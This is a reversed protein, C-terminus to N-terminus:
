NEKGCLMTWRAAAEEETLFVDQGIDEVPLEEKDEDDVVFFAGFENNIGVKIVSYCIIGGLDDRDPLYVTDGVAVPFIPKIAAIRDVLKDKEEDSTHTADAAKIVDAMSIYQEHLNM